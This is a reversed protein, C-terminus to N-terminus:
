AEVRVYVCKGPMRPEEASPLWGNLLHGSSLVTTTLLKLEEGGKPFSPKPRAVATDRVRVVTRRSRM